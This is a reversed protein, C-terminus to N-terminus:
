TAQLVATGLLTPISIRFPVLMRTGAVPALWLEMDRQDTLYQIAYRSPRPGAIPRFLMSCVVVPGRYGRDAQVREMRKFVFGLDFRYWGDFIPVTRRCAQPGLMDGTGAMPVIAATIPDLVGRRHADTVPVRDPNQDLPPEVLLDKVNSGNFSMR